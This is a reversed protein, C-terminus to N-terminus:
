VMKICKFGETTGYYDFHIDDDVVRWPGAAYYEQVFAVIMNISLDKAPCGHSHPHDNKGDVLAFEAWAM